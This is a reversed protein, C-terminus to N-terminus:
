LNIINDSIKNLNFVLDRKVLIYNNMFLDVIKIIPLIHDLRYGFKIDFM